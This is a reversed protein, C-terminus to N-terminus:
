RGGNLRESGVEDGGLRSANLGRRQNILSAGRLLTQSRSVGYFRAPERGCERSQNQLGSTDPKETQWFCAAATARTVCVLRLHYGAAPTAGTKEASETSGGLRAPPFHSTTRSRQAQGRAGTCHSTCCTGPLSPPRLHVYLGAVHRRLPKWSVSSPRAPHRHPAAGALRLVSRRGEAGVGAWQSTWELADWAVSEAITSSPSGRRCGRPSRGRRHASPTKRCTAPPSAWSTWPRAAERGLADAGVRSAVVGRDGACQGHLRLQRPSRRAPKGSPLLDWLSRRARCSPLNTLPQTM